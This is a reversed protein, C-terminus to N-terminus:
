FSYRVGVQFRRTQNPDASTAKGFEPDFINNIYGNDVDRNFVNLVDFRLELAQSQGWRFDKAVSLDLNV